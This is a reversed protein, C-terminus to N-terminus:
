SRRRRRYAIFGLALAIPLMGELQAPGAAACPCGQPVDAGLADKFGMTPVVYVCEVASLPSRNGAEDLAVVAVAASDGGVQSASLTTRTATASGESKRLLSAVNDASGGETLVGSGCMDNSAGSPEPEPEDAGGDENSSPPKVGGDRIPTEGGGNDVYIEFSDVNENGVSWTIPIANEGRGGEIRTPADPPATDIYLKRYGWSNQEADGGSSVSDLALFWIKPDADRDACGESTPFAAKIIDGTKLMVRQNDPGSIDIDNETVRKCETGENDRSEADNCDEGMFVAVEQDTPVKDLRFEIEANDDCDELSIWITGLDNQSEGAISLIGISIAGGSEETQTPTQEESQALSLAPTALLTASALLATRPWELL